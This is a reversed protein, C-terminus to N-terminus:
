QLQSSCSKSPLYSFVSQFTLYTNKLNTLVSSVAIEQIIFACLSYGKECHIPKFSSRQVCVTSIHRHVSIDPSPLVNQTSQATPVTYSNLLPKSLVSTGFLKILNPFLFSIIAHSRKSEKPFGYYLKKTIADNGYGQHPALYPLSLVMYFTLNYDAM